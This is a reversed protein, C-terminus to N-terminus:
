HESPGAPPPVRALDAQSMPAIEFLDAVAERALSRSLAELRAPDLKTLTAALRDSVRYAVGERPRDPSARRIAYVVARGERVVEPSYDFRINQKGLTAGTGVQLGDLICSWPQRQREPPMWCVVEVSWFGPTHLRQVADRGVMTGLVLWPGLHGHFEGARVLWEPDSAERVYHQLM